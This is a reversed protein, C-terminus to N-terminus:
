TDKLTLDLYNIQNNLEENTTFQLENYQKNFEINIIQPNIKTQDYILFIDDVYRNCYIIRGDELLHKIRSQEIQQLYIEALIGSLPSGMAVGSKPKYFKGEYHFYNQNTILRITIMIEKRIYTDINNHKLTKNIINLTTNTPIKVYLDKIDMTLLKHNSNLKLKTLNEAFQATNKVNFEDKLQILKKLQHHIHQALKHTPAQTNNIVPRIPTNPKHIKIRANLNPAQPHMQIIYKRKKPDIIHTCQKITDLTTKQLKQTPNTKLKDIDNEKIFTNVKNELDKKHIVVM